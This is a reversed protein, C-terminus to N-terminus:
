DRPSPSTYLLCINVLVYIPDEPELILSPRKAVDSVKTFTDKLLYLPKLGLREFLGRSLRNMGGLTCPIYENESDTSNKLVAYSYAAAVSDMDPNRHGTIYIKAM